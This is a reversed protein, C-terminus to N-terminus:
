NLRVSCIKKRVTEIHTNWSLNEDTSVSISKTASVQEILFNDITLSLNDSLYVRRQRSAIRLFKTKSLNLTLKNSSLWNNVSKLDKNLYDDIEILDKGAYIISTDDAYMRPHSFNLCQPLDNIYLLFLLLGLITGQPVDCNLFKPMSKSCNIQCIQTRDVLYSHFLHLALDVFEM